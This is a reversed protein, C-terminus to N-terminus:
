VDKMEESLSKVAQELSELDKVKARINDEDQEERRSVVFYMVIIAIVILSIALVLDGMM